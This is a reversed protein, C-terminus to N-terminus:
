RPGAPVPGRLGFAHDSTLALTGAEEVVDDFAPHALIPGLPHPEMLRQDIQCLRLLLKMVSHRAEAFSCGHAEVLVGAGYALVAMGWTLM